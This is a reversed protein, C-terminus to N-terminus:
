RRELAELRTELEKIRDEDAALRTTLFQVYNINYLDGNDDATEEIFWTDRYDIGRRDLAEIVDQAIAGYNTRQNAEQKSEDTFDYRFQTLDVSAIAGKVADSIAEIDTKVRRDSSSTLNVYGLLTTGNYIDLRGSTYNLVYKYTTSKGYAVYGTNTGDRIIAYDKAYVSKSSTDTFILKPSNNDIGLFASLGNEGRLELFGGDGTEGLAVQWQGQEVEAGMYLVEGLADPLLSVVAKQSNYLLYGGADAQFKASGDSKQMTLLADSPVSWALEFAGTIAGNRDYLYYGHAKTTTKDGRNDQTVLVGSKLDITNGAGDDSIIEIGRLTGTTIADAVIKGDATLAVTAYQGTYSNAWMLGQQNFRWVSTATDIDDTNMILLEDPYGDDDSDHLIVYGGLNGTIKQVAEEMDRDVISKTAYDTALVWDGAVFSGSQRATRCVYLDTGDTWLDGVDYPPYPQIVFVRRKGDATQMAEIAKEYSTKNPKQTTDYIQKEVSLNM